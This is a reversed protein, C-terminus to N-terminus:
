TKLKSTVWLRGGGNVVMYTNPCSAIQVVLQGDDVIGGDVVLKDTFFHQHITTAYSTFFPSLRMEGSVAVVGLPAATTFSVALHIAYAM